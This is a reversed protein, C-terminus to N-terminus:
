SRHHSLRERKPNREQNLRWIKEIYLKATLISNQSKEGPALVRSIYNKLKYYRIKSKLQFKACCLLSLM